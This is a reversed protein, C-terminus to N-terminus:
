GRQGSSKQRTAESIALRAQMLCSPTFFSQRGAEQREPMGRFGEQTDGEDPRLQTEELSQLGCDRRQINEDNTLPLGQGPRV